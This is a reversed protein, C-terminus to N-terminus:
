SKTTNKENSTIPLSETWTVNNNEIQWLQPQLFRDSKEQAIASPMALLQKRAQIKARNLQEINTDQLNLQSAKAESYNSRNRPIRELMEFQLEELEEVVSCLEIPKILEAIQVAPIIKIHSIKFQSAANISYDFLVRIYVENKVEMESNDAQSFSFRGFHIIWTINPFTTQVQPYHEFVSTILDKVGCLVNINSQNSALESAIVLTKQHEEDVYIRLLCHSPSSSMKKEKRKSSCDWSFVTKVCEIQSIAQTDSIIKNVNMM